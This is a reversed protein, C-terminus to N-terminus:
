VNLIDEYIKTLNEVFKEKTFNEKVFKYGADGMQNALTKDNIIRKIASILM